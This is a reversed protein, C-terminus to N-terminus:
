VNVSEIELEFTNGRKGGRRKSVSSSRKGIESNGSSTGRLKIESESDFM